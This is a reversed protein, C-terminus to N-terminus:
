LIPGYFYRLINKLIFNGIILAVAIHVIRDHYRMGIPYKGRGAREIFQTTMFYVYVIAAYPVFPHYWAAQLFRGHLLARLARTGGCGPCYYGTIIHFLCPPLRLASPFFQFLFSAAGAAVASLIGILFFHDEITPHSRNTRNTFFNKM